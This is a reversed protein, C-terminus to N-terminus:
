LRRLDFRESRLIVGNPSDEMQSNPNTRQKSKTNPNQSKSRLVTDMASFLGPPNLSQSEATCVRTQLLFSFRHAALNFDPSLPRFFDDQHSPLVYRPQLRALAAALRAAFDPLAWASSQLTMRRSGSENLRCSRRHEEPTSTFASANVEILFALPEGCIWRRRTAAVGSEGVGALRGIL